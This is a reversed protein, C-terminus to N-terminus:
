HRAGTLLTGSENKLLYSEDSNRVFLSDEEKSIYFAITKLSCSNLSNYEKVSRIFRCAPEGRNIIGIRADSRLLIDTKTKSM